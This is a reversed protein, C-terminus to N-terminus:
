LLVRGRGSGWGCFGYCMEGGDGSWWRKSCSVAIRENRVLRSLCSLHPSVTPLLSLYPKQRRLFVLFHLLCMDRRRISLFLQFALHCVNPWCVDAQSISNLTASSLYEEWRGRIMRAQEFHDEAIWSLRQLILLVDYTSATELYQFNLWQCTCYEEVSTLMRFIGHSNNLPKLLM